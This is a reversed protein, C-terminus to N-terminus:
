LQLLSHVEESEVKSGSAMDQLKQWFATYPQVEIEGGLIIQLDGNQLKNDTFLIAADQTVIAYSFFVPNYDIDSGRLNFLWAIEDLATLVFVPCKQKSM